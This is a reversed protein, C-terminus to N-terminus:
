ESGVKYQAPTIRAPNAKIEYPPEEVKKKKDDNKQKEEDNKKEADSIPFCQVLVLSAFSIFFLM